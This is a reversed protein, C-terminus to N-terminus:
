GDLLGFKVDIIFQRLSLSAEEAFYAIDFWSIWDCPQSLIVEDIGPEPNNHFGVSHREFAAIHKQIHNHSVKLADHLDHVEVYPSGDRDNGLKEAREYVALMFERDIEPVKDLKETFEALASLADPLDIIDFADPFVKLFASLTTPKTAAIFDTTDQYQAAFGQRLTSTIESFKDEHKAKMKRLMAASYKKEDSDIITHHDGCLLALNSLARREENSMNKNFRKGGPEAAEIHCIKGIMIGDRNIMVRDCNPFACLNGSKLYLPRLVKKKPALRKPKESNAKPKAM